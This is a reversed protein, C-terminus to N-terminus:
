NFYETRNPGNFINPTSEFQAIFSEVSAGQGMYRELKAAPKRMKDDNGTTDNTKVNTTTSQHAATPTMPERKPELTSVDVPPSPSVARDRPLAPLCRRARQTSTTAAATHPGTRPQWLRSDSTSSRCLSAATADGQLTKWKLAMHQLSAVLQDKDMIAIIENLEAQPKMEAAGMFQYTFEDQEMADNDFLKRCEHSVCTEDRARHETM